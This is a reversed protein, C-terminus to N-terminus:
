GLSSYFKSCILTSLVQLQYALQAKARLARVERDCAARRLALDRQSRAISAENRLQEATRAEEAQAARIGADRRAEAEGIRADRKVQATRAM